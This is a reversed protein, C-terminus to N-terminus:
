RGVEVVNDERAKRMLQGEDWASSVSMANAVNLRDAASSMEGAVDGFVGDPGAAVLAWVAGQASAVSAFLSPVNFLTPDTAGGAVQSMQVTNLGQKGPLWRYYRIAVGKKKEQIEVKGAGADVDVISFGSQGSQKDDFRPEYKRGTRGQVKAAFSGDASPELNGPGPTGDLVEKPTAAGYEVEGRGALYVGLSYTSYRRDQPAGLVDASLRTGGNWGRLYDRDAANTNALSFNFASMQPRAPTLSNNLYFPYGPRTSAGAVARDMVLPPAFGHDKTFQEIGMKMGALTQKTVADRALGFSHRGAVVILGALIALMLLVVLMEILTFGRRSVRAFARGSGHQQQRSKM